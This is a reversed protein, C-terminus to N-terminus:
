VSAEACSTGHAFCAFCRPHRLLIKNKERAENLSNGLIYSDDDNVLTCPYFCLNNNKKVLMLSHCCMFADREQKTKYKTMCSETIEPNKNSSESFSLDPFAVINTNLPLSFQEFFPQFTQNMKLSDEDTDMRRAISITHGMQNLKKCNTFTRQFSGKGRASDHRRENPYDISARLYLKHAKQNFSELQTFYKEIPETANTLVRCPAHDLAFSLINIFDKNIFPEGGTFCFTQVGLKAAELIIPKAEELTIAEIRKSTISAGEFCTPCRLNCKTGTHIWFDTLNGVEIYGRRHNDTTYHKQWDHSIAIEDATAFQDAQKGINQKFSEPIKKYIQQM